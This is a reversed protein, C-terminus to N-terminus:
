LKHVVSNVLYNELQDFTGNLGNKISEISKYYTLHEEYTVDIPHGTLTLITNNGEVNFTIINIIQLPWKESIPNRTIGGNEDSFSVIFVIKEYKIIEEFALKAWIKEGEPSLMCYHFFGGPMFELKAELM